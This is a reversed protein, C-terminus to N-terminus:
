ILGKEAFSTPKLGVIIHDLVRVDLLELAQTLRKTIKIDAQSPTTDGSPHNHAFIVAAANNLLCQKAVERPYVSAQDITGFFMERYEILQHQSDLFLVSFVESDYQGLKYSLYQKVSKASTFSILRERYKDEIIKAAAELVENATLPKYTVYVKAISMNNGEILNM